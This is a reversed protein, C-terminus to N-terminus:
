LATYIIGGAVADTLAFLETIGNTISTIVTVIVSAFGACFRIRNGFTIGFACAVFDADIVFAAQGSCTVGTRVACAILNALASCALVFLLCVASSFVVASRTLNAILICANTIGIFLKVAAFVALCAVFAIVTIFSGTFADGIVFGVAADVVVARGTIDAICVGPFAIGINLEVAAFLSLAAVGAIFALLSRSFANEQGTIVEGATSTFVACIRCGSSSCFASSVAGIVLSIVTSVTLDAVAARFGAVRRFAAFGIGTLIRCKGTFVVFANRGCFVAFRVAAWIFVCAVFLCIGTVGFQFVANFIAARCIM